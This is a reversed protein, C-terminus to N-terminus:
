RQSISLFTTFIFHSSGCSLLVTFLINGNYFFTNAAAMMAVTPIILISDEKIETSFIDNLMYILLQYMIHM